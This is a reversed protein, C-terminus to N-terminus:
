KENVRPRKFIAWFADQPNGAGDEGKFKELTVLEWNEAGLNNLEEIIKNAAIYAGNYEWM